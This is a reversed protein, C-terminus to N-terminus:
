SLTDSQIKLKVSGLNAAAFLARALEILAKTDRECYELLESRLMAEDSKGLEGSVIRAFAGMAATGESVGELDSYTVEPAFAPGVKKITFSGLLSPHYVHARVIPLLDVLRDIIAELDRALEPVCTAMNKLCTAEYHSYVLVPASDRGLVEVLARAVEPRPDVRGDALFEFHEPEGQVAEALRHLSWQFAMAKFPQTGAYFPIAPAIAEFDLAWVPPAADELAEALEPSFWPELSETVEIM